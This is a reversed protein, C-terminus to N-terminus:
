FAKIRNLVIKQYNPLPKSKQALRYITRCDMVQLGAEASPSTSNYFGAFPRRRAPSVIASFLNAWFLLRAFNDACTFCFLLKIEALFCISFCGHFTDATKALLLGNGRNKRALGYVASISQSQSFCRFRKV